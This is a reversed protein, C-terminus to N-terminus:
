RSWGVTRGAGFRYGCSGGKGERVKSPLQRAFSMSNNLSVDYQECVGSKEDVPIGELVDRLYSRGDPMPLYKSKEKKGLNQYSPVVGPIVKIAPVEDRRDGGEPTVRM